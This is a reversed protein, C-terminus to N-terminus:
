FRGDTKCSHAKCNAPKIDRHIVIASNHRVSFTIRETNWSVKPHKNCLEQISRPPVKTLRNLVTRTDLEEVLKKTDIGIGHHCLSLAASLHFLVHWIFPEPLLLKPRGLNEGDHHCIVDELNLAGPSQGESLESVSAWQMRIYARNESPEHRFDIPQVISPHSLAELNKYEREFDQIIKRGNPKGNYDIIKL